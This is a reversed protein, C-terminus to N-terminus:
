VLALDGRWSGQRYLKKHEKVRRSIFYVLMKHKKNHTRTLKDTYMHTCVCRKKLFSLCFAPLSASSFPYFPSGSNSQTLAQAVNFNLTREGFPLLWNWGESGPSIWKAISTRRWLAFPHRAAAQIRNWSLELPCPFPYSFPRAAWAYDLSENRWWPRSTTCEESRKTLNLQDVSPEFGCFICAVIFAVVVSVVVFVVVLCTFCILCFQFFYRTDWMERQNIQCKRM